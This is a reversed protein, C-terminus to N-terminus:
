PLVVVNKGMIRQQLSCKGTWNSPRRYMVHDAATGVANNHGRLRWCCSHDASTMSGSSLCVHQLRWVGLGAGKPESLSKGEGAGRGSWVGQGQAASHPM